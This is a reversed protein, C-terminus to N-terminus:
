VFHLSHSEYRRTAVDAIPARPGCVDSGIRGGWTRSTSSMAVLCQQVFVMFLRSKRRNRWLQSGNDLRACCHPDSHAIAHLSRIFIPDFKDDSPKMKVGVAEVDNQDCLSWSSRAHELATVNPMPSATKLGPEM